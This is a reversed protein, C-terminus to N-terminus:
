VVNATLIAMLLLQVCVSLSPYLSIFASLPPYVCIFVSLSPYLCIFVSLSPYLRVKEVCGDGTSDFARLFADYVVSLYSEAVTSPKSVETLFDKIHNVPRKIPAEADDLTERAASAEAEGAEGMERIRKNTATANEKNEVTGDEGGDIGFLRKYEYSTCVYM